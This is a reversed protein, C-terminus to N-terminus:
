WEAMQQCSKLNQVRAMTWSFLETFVFVSFIHLHVVAIYWERFLPLVSDGASMKKRKRYCGMRQGLLTKAHWASCLYKPSIWTLLIDEKNRNSQWCYQTQSLGAGTSATCEPLKSLVQQISWLKPVDCLDCGMFVKEANKYLSVQNQMTQNSLYKPNKLSKTKNIIKLSTIHSFLSKLIDFSNFDRFYYLFFQFQM